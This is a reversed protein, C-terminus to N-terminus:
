CGRNARVVFRRHQTGDGFSAPQGCSNGTITFDSWPLSARNVYDAWFMTFYGDSTREFTNHEIRVQTPPGVKPRFYWWTVFLDFVSCNTFTSNRIVVDVGDALMLCEVHVDPDRTVDHFRVGDILLHRSPQTIQDNPVAIFSNGNHSPGVSGGVISVWSAPAYIFFAGLTRVRRFTVHSGGNVTWGGITMDRFELNSAGALDVGAVQVPGDPVFVVRHGGPTLTQAPYVGALVHVLAGVRVQHYARDFTHQDAGGPSVLVGAAAIGAAAALM